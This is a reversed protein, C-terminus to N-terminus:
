ALFIEAKDSNKDIHLIECMKAIMVTDMATKNNLKNNLTNKTCGLKESLTRQTYGNAVMIGKLRNTDVM